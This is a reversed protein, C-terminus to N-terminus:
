PVRAGSEERLQDLAARVIASATLRRGRDRAQHQMRELWEAQQESIYVVLRRGPAQAQALADLAAPM